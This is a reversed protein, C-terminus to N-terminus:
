PAALARAIAEKVLSISRELRHLLSNLDSSTVEELHLNDDAVSQAILQDISGAISPLGDSIDECAIGRVSLRIHGDPAVTVNLKAAKLITTEVISAPLELACVVNGTERCRFGARYGTPGFPGAGDVAFFAEFTGTM